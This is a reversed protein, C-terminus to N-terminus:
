KPCEYERCKNPRTEYIGCGSESLHQCPSHIMLLVTDNTVKTTVGWTQFFNISDEPMGALEITLFECCANCRKPTM